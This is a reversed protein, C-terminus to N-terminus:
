GVMAIHRHHHLIANADVMRDHMVKISDGFQLAKSSTLNFEDLDVSACLSANEGVELVIFYGLSYQNNMRVIDGEEPCEHGQIQSEFFWSKPQVPKHFRKAAVCYLALEAQRPESLELGSIQEKFTQYSSADDVTFENEKFACDVLKNRVLNTKFIMDEGLNLMLSCQQEDYYWSWTDSPKRM